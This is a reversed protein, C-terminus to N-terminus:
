VVTGCILLGFSSYRTATGLSYFMHPM